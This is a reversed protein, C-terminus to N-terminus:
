QDNQLLMIAIFPNLAMYMNCQVLKHQSGPQGRPWDAQLRGTSLVERRTLLRICIVVSGNVSVWATGQWHETNRKKNLLQICIVISRNVSLGLISPGQTLRSTTQWHEANREKKLATYM